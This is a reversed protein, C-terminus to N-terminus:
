GYGQPPCHWPGVRHRSCHGRAHSGFNGVGDSDTQVRSTESATPLRPFFGLVPPNPSMGFHAVGIGM